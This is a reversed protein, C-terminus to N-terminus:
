KWDSPNVGSTALRVLVEGPGPTPTPMEGFTLVDSDGNREYWVAKM